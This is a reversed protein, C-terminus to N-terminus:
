KSFPPIVQTPIERTIKGILKGSSKYGRSNGITTSVVKSLATNLNENRKSM